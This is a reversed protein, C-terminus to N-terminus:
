YEVAYRSERFEGADMSLISRMKETDIEEGDLSLRLIERNMDNLDEMYRSYYRKNYINAIQCYQGKYLESVYERAPKFVQQGTKSDKYWGAKSKIRNKTGDCVVDFTESDIIKGTYIKSVSQSCTWTACEFLGDNKTIYKTLYCSIGDISNVSRIDLGNYKEKVQEYKGATHLASVGAGYKAFLYRENAEHIVGKEFQQKAWLSNVYMLPLKMDLLIHFHIRGNQQREAVNIYNFKGYRDRLQTFFNNLIDMGLNDSVDNVFTLTLFTFNVKGARYGKRGQCAAFLALLKSRVKEKTSKSMKHMTQQRTEPEKEPDIPKQEKAPKRNYTSGTYIDITPTRSITRTARNYGMRIVFNNKYEKEAASKVWRERQFDSFANDKSKKALGANFKAASTDIARYRFIATKKLEEVKQNYVEDDFDPIYQWQKVM